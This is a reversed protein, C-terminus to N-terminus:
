VHTDEPWVTVRALGSASSHITYKRGLKDLACEIKPVIEEHVMGNFRPTSVVRQYEVGLIFAREPTIKSFENV